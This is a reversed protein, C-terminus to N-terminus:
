ARATPDTAADDHTHPHASLEEGHEDIVILDYEDRGFHYTAPNGSKTQFCGVECRMGINAADSGDISCAIHAAWAEAFIPEKLVDRLWETLAAKGKSNLRGFTITTEEDHTSM